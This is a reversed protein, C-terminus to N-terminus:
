ARSRWRGGSSALTSPTIYLWNPAAELLMGPRVASASNSWILGSGSVQSALGPAMGLMSQREMWQVYAPDARPLGLEPAPGRGAERTRHTRPGCGALTLLVCLALLLLRAGAATRAHSPARGMGDRAAQPHRRM